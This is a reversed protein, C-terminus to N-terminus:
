RLGVSAKVPKGDSATLSIGPLGAARENYINIIKRYRDNICSTEEVRLFLEAKLFL